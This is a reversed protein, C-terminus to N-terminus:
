LNRERPHMPLQWDALVDADDATARLVVLVAPARGRSPKCRARGSARCRALGGRCRMLGACSWAAITIGMVRIHANLRSAPTAWSSRGGQNLANCCPCTAPCEPNYGACVCPLLPGLGASARGHRCRSARVLGSGLRAVGRRGPLLASPAKYVAHHKPSHPLVVSAAYTGCTVLRVVIVYM